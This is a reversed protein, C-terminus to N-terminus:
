IHTSSLAERHFLAPAALGVPNSFFHHVERCRSTGEGSTRLALLDLHPPSAGRLQKLPLVLLYTLSLTKDAV